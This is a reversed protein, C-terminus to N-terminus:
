ARWVTKQNVWERALELGHAEAEKRTKFMEGEIRQLQYYIGITRDQLGLWAISVGEHLDSDLLWLAYLRQVPAHDPRALIWQLIRQDQATLLSADLPFM